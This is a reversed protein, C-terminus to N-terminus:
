AARQEHEIRQTPNIPLDTLRVLEQQELGGNEYVRRAKAPDGILRPPLSAFGAQANQSQSLGVLVPLYDPRESRSSYGKYRNSFENATFPWEDETKTGLKVWGGMDTIVRHILPDDFIVSEYTGVTRVARDVKSWAVLSSDKSSGQLMRVADAPKPMFQGTDPNICHRNLADAVADYDYPKMAQWWIQISFDSVDQRYFAHVGSILNVFKSQDENKM